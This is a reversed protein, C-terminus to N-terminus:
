LKQEQLLSKIWNISSNRLNVFIQRKLIHHFKQYSAFQCKIAPAHEQFQESVKLLVIFCDNLNFLDDFIALGFIKLCLLLQIVKFHQSFFCTRFDIINNFLPFRHSLGTM